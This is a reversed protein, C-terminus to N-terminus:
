EDVETVAEGVLDEIPYGDDKLKTATRSGIVTM